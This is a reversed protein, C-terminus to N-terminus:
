SWSAPPHMVTQPARWLLLSLALRAQSATLEGAAPWLSPSSARAESVGGQAVRSSRWIAVGRAHLMRLPDSWSAPLTGHGTGSLVLGRIPTTNTALLCELLHADADAHSYVVCVRPLHDPLDHWGWNLPKPWARDTPMIQDSEITALPAHGGADFADVHWSHSKRIEAGAWVRGAMVAVVGNHGHQGAWSVVAIAHALNTPGDADPATAPRMAATLVVPKQAPLLVHLLLATEELTDTGHTIVVGKV